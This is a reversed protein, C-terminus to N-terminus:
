IGMGDGFPLVPAVYPAVEGQTLEAYLERGHEVPDDPSATFPIWGYTPHNVECDITGFRNFAVKRVEMVFDKYVLHSQKHKWHWCPGNSAM